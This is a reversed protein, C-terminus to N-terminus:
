RGSSVGKMLKMDSKMRSKMNSKVYGFFGTGSLKLLLSYISNNIPRDTFLHMSGNSLFNRHYYKACYELTKRQFFGIHQGHDLGYYWWEEPLPLIDPLLETTFLINNSIKLMSEIEKMPDEFHEFSEFTTILEINNISDNYEFGRALINQSYLDFWYFDFGIDRMLRTFIGVGGCSDLYKGNRDFFLYLVSAVKKSLSINRQLIGTDSVNIPEAYAKSHWYPDETQLYGCHSCHYYGVNYQSM